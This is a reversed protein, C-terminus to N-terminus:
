MNVTDSSIRIQGAGGEPKGATVITSRGAAQVNCQFAIKFKISM